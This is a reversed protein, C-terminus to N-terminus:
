LSLSLSDGPFVVLGTVCPSVPFTFTYDRVESKPLEVPNRNVAACEFPVGGGVVAGDRLLCGVFYKWVECAVLAM